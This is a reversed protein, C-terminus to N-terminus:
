KNNNNGNKFQKKINNAIDKAMWKEMENLFRQKDDKITSSFFYTPKIGDRGIKRVIPYAWKQDIGKAQAWTKIVQIPPQKGPKRGEDVWKGYDNMIYLLDFSNNNVKIEYRISDSLAGSKGASALKNKMINVQRQGMSDLYKYTLPYNM